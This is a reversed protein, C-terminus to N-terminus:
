ENCPQIVIMLLFFLLVTVSRLLWMVDVRSVVGRHITRHSKANQERMDQTERRREISRSAERKGDVIRRSTNVATADLYKTEKQPM